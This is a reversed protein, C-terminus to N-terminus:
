KRCRRPRYSKPYKHDSFIRKDISKGIVKLHGALPYSITGDPLVVVTRRMSEEKWISIDLVDGPNLRYDDSAALAPGATFLVALIITVVKLM